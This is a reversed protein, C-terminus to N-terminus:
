TEEGGAGQMASIADRAEDRWDSWKPPTGSDSRNYAGMALARAVYEVLTENEVDVPQPQHARGNMWVHEAVRHPPDAPTDGVSLSVKFADERRAFRCAKAHDVSWRGWGEGTWYLPKSSESSAHEIVWGTEDAQIPLLEQPPLDDTM